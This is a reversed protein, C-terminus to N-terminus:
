DRRTRYSDFNYKHKKAPNKKFLTFYLLIVLLAIALVGGGIALVLILTKNKEDEKEKEINRNSVIQEEKHGCESCTREEKGNEEATPEKVRVWEGYTHASDDLPKTASPTKVLQCASCAFVIEGQTKCTSDTEHSKVWNHANTPNITQEEENSCLKCRVKQYGYTACGPAKYDVLNEYDFDHNGTPNHVGGNTLASQWNPLLECECVDVIRYQQTCIDTIRQTSVASYYYQKGLYVHNNPAAPLWSQHVTEECTSCKKLIEGQGACSSAITIEETFNHAVPDVYNDITEVKCRTCYNKDYGQEQCTPAVTQTTYDHDAFVIASNDFQHGGGISSFAGKENRIAALTVYSRDVNEEVFIEVLVSIVGEDLGFAYNGISNVPAKFTLTKMRVNKFAAQGITKASLVMHEVYLTSGVSQQFAYNGITESVYELGYVRKLKPMQYFSYAEVTKLSRPLTIEEIYSNGYFVGLIANDVGTGGAIVEVGLPLELAIIDQRSINYATEIWAPTFSQLRKGDADGFGFLNAAPVRLTRGDRLGVSVYVDKARPYFYEIDVHDCRICYTTYYGPETLEQTAVAEKTLEKRTTHGLAASPVAYAENCYNCLYNIVGAQTCTAQVDTAPGKHECREFVYYGDQNLDKKFIYNGNEFLAKLDRNFLGGTIYIGHKSPENTFVTKAEFNYKGGTIKFSLVNSMNAGNDEFVRTGTVTVVSNADFQATAGKMGSSRIFSTASLTASLNFNYTYASDSIDTAINVFGVNTTIPISTTTSKYHPFVTVEVNSTLNSPSFNFMAVGYTSQASSNHTITGTHKTSTDIIHVSTNKGVFAAGDTNFTLNYGNLDIIVYGSDPLTVTQDVTIHQYLKLYNGPGKQAVSTVFDDKTNITRGYAEYFTIDSNVSTIKMGLENGTYLRGDSTYWGFFVKNSQTASVKTNRIIHSSGPTVEVKEKVVGNAVYQITYKKEDASITLACAFVVGLALALVILFKILSKKM